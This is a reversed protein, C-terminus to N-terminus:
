SKEGLRLKDAFSKTMRRIALLCRYDNIEDILMPICVTDLRDAPFALDCQNSLRADPSAPLM